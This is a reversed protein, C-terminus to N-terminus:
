TAGNTLCAISNDASLKKRLTARASTQVVRALRGDQLLKVSFVDTGDGRCQAEVDFCQLVFPVVCYIVAVNTHTNPM